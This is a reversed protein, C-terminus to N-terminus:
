RTSTALSVCFNTDYIIASCDECFLQLTDGRDVKERLGQILQLNMSPEKIKIGNKKLYIIMYTDGADDDFQSCTITYSGPFPSTLVATAIDLSSKAVSTSSYLVM